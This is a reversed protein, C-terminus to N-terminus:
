KCSIHEQMYTLLIFAVSLGIPLLIAASQYASLHYVPLSDVVYIHGHWSLIWSFINQYLIYGGQTLISVMSLATATIEPASNEAVLAYSIVQAATFFGLLFFLIAMINSTVPVYLICLIVCLSVLAGVKMPLLRVGIKDSWFGMVPGGIIAGVFLMMNILAASEKAIHLRQILYLSGMIAGFVAIGMNMLSAFIAAFLNNFNCYALQMSHWISFKITSRQIRSQQADQVILSIIGLM